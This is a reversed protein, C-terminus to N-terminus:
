ELVGMQRRFEEATDAPSKAMRVYWRGNMRAVESTDEEFEDELTMKYLVKAQNPADRRIELIEPTFKAFAELSKPEVKRVMKFLLVYVEPGSLRARREKPIGDFFMDVVDRVDDNDIDGAKLFIPLLQTRLQALDLPHIYATAGKFDQRSMRSWFNTFNARIDIEDVDAAAASLVLACSLLLAVVRHKIFQM